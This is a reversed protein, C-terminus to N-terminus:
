RQGCVSGIRDGAQYYRMLYRGRLMGDFATFKAGERASITVKGGTSAAHQKADLYSDGMPPAGCFQNRYRPM